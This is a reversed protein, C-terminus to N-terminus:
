RASSLGWVASCMSGGIERRVTGEPAGADSSKNMESEVGNADACTTIQERVLFSM